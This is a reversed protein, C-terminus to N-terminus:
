RSRKTATGSKTGNSGGAQTIARLVYTGGPQLFSAPIQWSKTVGNAVLKEVLEYDTKNSRVEFLVM